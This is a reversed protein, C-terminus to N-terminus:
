NLADCYNETTVIWNRRLNAHEIMTEEALSKDSLSSVNRYSINMDRRQKGKLDHRCVHVLVYEM